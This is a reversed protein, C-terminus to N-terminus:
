QSLTNVREQNWDDNVLSATLDSSLMSSGKFDLGLDRGPISFSLQTIKGDNHYIEAVPHKFFNAVSRCVSSDFMEGSFADNYGLKHRRLDVMEAAHTGDGVQEFIANFGCNNHGDGPTNNKRRGTDGLLENLAIDSIYKPESSIAEMSQIQRNPVSVSLPNQKNKLVHFIKRLDMINHIDATYIATAL